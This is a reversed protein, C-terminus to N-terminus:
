GDKVQPIVPTFKTLDVNQFESPLEQKTVPLWTQNRGFFLVKGRVILKKDQVWLELDYIKGQQPDIIKGDKFRSGVQQINWILDLGSYYPHGIVGPAREGPHIISDNVEGDPTFTLLIRGFYKGKYEYIAVVSQPHGTKEDISKWLGVIDEAAMLNLSLAMMTLATILLAKLM